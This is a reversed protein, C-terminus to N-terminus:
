PPSPAPSRQLLASSAFFGQVVDTVPSRTKQHPEDDVGFLKAPLPNAVLATSLMLVALLRKSLNGHKCSYHKSCENQM